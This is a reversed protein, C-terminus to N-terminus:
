GGALVARVDAHDPPRATVGGIGGFARDATVVMRARTLRAAAALHADVSGLGAHREFLDLAEAVVEDGGGIPAGLIEVYVGALTAADARTRRRAWVQLLELLCPETVRADVREDAVARLIERCPTKLPHETGAAYILVNTDLLIM